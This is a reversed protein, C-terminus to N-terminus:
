IKLKAILAKLIEDKDAIDSAPQAKTVYGNKNVYFLINSCLGSTKLYYVINYHEIDEIINTIDICLEDCASKMKNYLQILGRLSPNYTINYTALEYSKLAEFIFPTNETTQLPIYSTYFGSENYCCDYVEKGSVTLITYRDKYQFQQVSVISMDIRNLASEASIYKIRQANTSNQLMPINDPVESFSVNDKIKGIKIINSFVLKSLPTINPMNVGYLREIARTTATYAWRLSLNDLGTRGTYDVFASKWEGGQAKHCTIAYGYKANLANFYKDELLMSIPVEMNTKIEPHRMRYSIYSATIEEQKLTPYTSELLNLIIKCEILLPGETKITVNKYKLDVNVKEKKGNRDVWVPASLVETSDSVEIVTVFDGNYIMVGNLFTNKVVQLVDGVMLGSNNPFYLNRIEDNYEKVKANSYCVVISNGISPVPQHEVFRQVVEEMSLDEVEGETRIFCLQNRHDTEINLVDRVLMANDLIASGEQQRLVDTLEFCETKLGKNEFYQKELAMSANDTVPPLQAPDGVFIIQGGKLPQVFTLLDDLLVDTGFHLLENKAQKSSILSAEDVIFLLDTPSIDEALPCLEFWLQIDDVGDSRKDSQKEVKFEVKIPKGDEDHRDTRLKQYAYIRSHITTAGKHTKQQLIKAARGTPAMVVPTKKVSEAYEIVSKIMTTKGTGAYGKLIFVHSRKEEIFTKIHELAQQQQPYLQM